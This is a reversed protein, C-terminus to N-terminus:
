PFRPVNQVFNQSSSEYTKDFNSAKEKKKWYDVHLNFEAFKSHHWTYCRRGCSKEMGMPNLWSEGEPFGQNELVAQDTEQALRMGESECLEKAEWFTRKEQFFVLKRSTERVARKKSSAIEICQPSDDNEACSVDIETSSAILANSKRAM